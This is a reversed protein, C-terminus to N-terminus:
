RALPPPLRRMRVHTDTVVSFHGTWDSRNELVGLVRDSETKPDTGALRFLVVGCEAPLRSRFAVEGFDKDLTVVLRQQAQACALIAEDAQGRMSEKASLVDHGRQRLTRIVTGSVNEDVLLRM